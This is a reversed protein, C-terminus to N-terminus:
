RTKPRPRPPPPRTSVRTPRPSEAARAELKTAIAALVDIATALDRPDVDVTLEHDLEAVSRVIGRLQGRDPTAVVRKIRADAPDAVREVVGADELRDLAASLTPLTVGLRAALETHTLGEKEGLLAFLLRIQAVSFGHPALRAELEGSVLRDARGLHLLFLAELETLATTHARM